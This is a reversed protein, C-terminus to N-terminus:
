LKLTTFRASLLMFLWTLIVVLVFVSLSVTWPLSLPSSGLPGLLPITAGVMVVRSLVHLPGMCILTATRLPTVGLSLTLDSVVEDVVVMQLSPLSSFWGKEVLCSILNVTTFLVSTLLAGRVLPMLGVRSFLMISTWLHLGSLTTWRGIGLLKKQVMVRGLTMILAPLVCLISGWLTGTVRVMARYFPMLLSIVLSVSFLMVSTLWETRLMMVLGQWPFNTGLQLWKPLLISELFVRVTPTVLDFGEIKVSVVLFDIDLCIM